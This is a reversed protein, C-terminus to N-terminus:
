VMAAVNLLAPHRQMCVQKPHAANLNGHAQMDQIPQQQQQKTVPQNTHRSDKTNM